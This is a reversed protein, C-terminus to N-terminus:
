YNPNDDVRARFTLDIRRLAGTRERRARARYFHLLTLNGRSLAMNTDVLADNIAGAVEKAAHFGAQGTIVSVVFRHWAGNASKDTAVRVDEPGLTVYLDPLTGLPLADYVAGGVLATLVADNTLREYVAAQLAAAIAYSM